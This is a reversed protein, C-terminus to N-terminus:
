PDFKFGQVVENCAKTARVDVVDYNCTVVWANADSKYLLTGIARRNRAKKDTIRWECSTGAPTKVLATGDLTVPMTAAFQSGAKACGPETNTSATEPHREVKTVVVSALFAKESVRKDAILAVGKPAMKRIREDTAIAYDLPVPVTFTEGRATAAKETELGQKKKCAVATLALLTALLVRTVMDSAIVRLSRRLEPLGAHALM